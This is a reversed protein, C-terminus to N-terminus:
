AGLGNLSSRLVRDRDPVDHTADHHRATATSADDVALDICAIVPRDSEELAGDGSGIQAVSTVDGHHATRHARGGLVEPWCTAIRM